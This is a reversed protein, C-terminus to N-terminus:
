LHALKTNKHYLVKGANKICISLKASICSKKIKKKGILSCNNTLHIKLLVEYLLSQKCKTCLNLTNIFYM